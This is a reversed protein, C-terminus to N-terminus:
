ADQLQQGVKMPPSGGHSDGRGRAGGRGHVIKPPCADRVVEAGDNATIGYWVGLGGGVDIQARQGLKAGRRLGPGPVGPEANFPNRIRGATSSILLTSFRPYALIVLKQQQL